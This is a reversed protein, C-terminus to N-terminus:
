HMWSCQKTNQFKTMTTKWNEKPRTLQQDLVQDVNQIGCVELASDCTTYDRSLVGFTQLSHWDNEDKALIDASYDNNSICDVLFGCNV